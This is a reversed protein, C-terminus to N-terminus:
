FNFILLRDNGRAAYITFRRLVLIEFARKKDVREAADDIVVAAPPLKEMIEVLMELILVDHGLVHDRIEVLVGSHVQGRNEILIQPMSRNWGQFQLEVWAMAGYRIAPFHIFRSELHRHTDALSVAPLDHM